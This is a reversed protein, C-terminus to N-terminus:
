TLPHPPIHSTFHRTLACAAAVLAQPPSIHNVVLCFASKENTKFNGNMTRSLNWRELNLHTGTATRLWTMPTMETPRPGRALLGGSLPAAPAPPATPPHPGESCPECRYCPKCNHTAGPCGCLDPGVCAGCKLADGHPDHCTPGSISSCNPLTSKAGIAAPAVGVERLAPPWWGIDSMKIDGAANHNGTEGSPMTSIESVPRNDPRCPGVTPSMDVFDCTTHVVATLTATAARQM